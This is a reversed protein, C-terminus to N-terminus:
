CGHTGEFFVEPESWSGDVNSNRRFRQTLTASGSNAHYFEVFVTATTAADAQMATTASVLIANTAEHLQYRLDETKGKNSLLRNQLEQKLAKRNMGDIM